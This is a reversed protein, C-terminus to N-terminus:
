NGFRYRMYPTYVNRHNIKKNTSHGRKPCKYHTIFNILNAIPVQNYILKFTFIGKNGDKLLLLGM